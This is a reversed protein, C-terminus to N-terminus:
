TLAKKLLAIQGAHYLDHQVMGHLAVYFDHRKGPVRASLRSAPLKRVAKILDRHARQLETIAGSWAGTPKPWDQAATVKVVEGSVRRAVIRKWATMHAVIERVTHTEPFLRASAENSGIGRLIKMVSPGHWANGDFAREMQDVIREIESNAM